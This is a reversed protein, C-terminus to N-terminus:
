WRRRRAEMAEAGTSPAFKTTGRYSLEVRKSESACGSPSDLFATHVDIPTQRFSLDRLDYVVVRPRGLVRLAHFREDRPVGHEPACTM